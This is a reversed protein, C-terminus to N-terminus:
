NDKGREAIMVRQAVAKIMRPIFRALMLILREAERKRAQKGLIM